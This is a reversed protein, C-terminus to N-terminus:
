GTEIPAAGLANIEKQHKKGTSKTLKNLKTKNIVVAKPPPAKEAATEKEGEAAEAAESPAASKAPSAASSSPAATSPPSGAAAVGLGSLGEVRIVANQSGAGGQAAWHGVLLGVLLCMLLVTVLGLLGSNRRLWANTGRGAEVPLYGAQRKYM